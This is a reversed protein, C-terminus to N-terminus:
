NTFYKLCLILNFRANALSYVDLFIIELIFTKSIPIGKQLFLSKGFQGGPIDCIPFERMLVGTVVTSYQLEFPGKLTSKLYTNKM